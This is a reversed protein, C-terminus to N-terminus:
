VIHYAHENGTHTQADQIDHRIANVHQRHAAALKPRQRYASYNQLVCLVSHHWRRLTACRRAFVCDDDTLSLSLSLCDFCACVSYVFRINDSCSIISM